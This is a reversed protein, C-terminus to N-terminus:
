NLYLYGSKERGNYHAQYLFYLDCSLSHMVGKKNGWLQLQVIQLICFRYGSWQMAHSIQKDENPGRDTHMEGHTAELLQSRAGGYRHQIWSAMYSWM